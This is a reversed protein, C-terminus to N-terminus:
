PSNRKLDEIYDDLDRIDILRRHGQIFSRVKKERVLTEIWGYTCSMYRAADPIRLLRPTIQSPM